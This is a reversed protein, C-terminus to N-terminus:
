DVLEALVRLLARAVVRRGVADLHGGDTTYCAALCPAGGATVRTGDPLTSEAAALDFVPERGGYEARLLRNFAERRLNVAAEGRGLVNKLREKWTAPPACLPVTCHVFRTEPHLRRWEAVARRYDGFLREVDTGRDIDVYCFKMLAVDIATGRAAELQQTVDRLKSAPDGNSGILAHALGPGGRLAAPEGIRLAVQPLEAAIAEVGALIDQGVSRHGFWIRKGALAQWRAAPLQALDTLPVDESRVMIDGPSTPALQLATAVGAGGLLLLGWLMRRMAADEAAPPAGDVADM